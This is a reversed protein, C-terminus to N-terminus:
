TNIESLALASSDANERHASPQVCELTLTTIEPRCFLRGPRHSGLGRNVYLFGQNVPYLGRIFSYNKTMRIRRSLKQSLQAQITKPLDDYFRWFQPILPGLGPLALQGGHTHGSLQLDIQWPALFESFKPSHTLVIKPTKQPIQEMVPMPDFTPPDDHPWLCKFGVLALEPGCPYCIENRLVQINARELPLPSKQLVRGASIIMTVLFPLIEWVVQYRNSRMVYHTSQMLTAM